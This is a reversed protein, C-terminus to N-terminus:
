YIKNSALGKVMSWFAKLESFTIGEVKECKICVDEYELSPCFECIEKHEAIELFRELNLQKM